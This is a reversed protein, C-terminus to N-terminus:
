VISDSSIGRHFLGQGYVGQHEREDDYLKTYHISYSTIVYMANPDTKKSRNKFSTHVRYKLGRAMHTGSTAKIGM